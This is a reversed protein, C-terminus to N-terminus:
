GLGYVTMANKVTLAAMEEPTMGRLAALKELVFRVDSMENSAM